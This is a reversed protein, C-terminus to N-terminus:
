RRCCKRCSQRFPIRSLFLLGMGFLMFTGPEPVSGSDHNMVDDLQTRSLAEDYIFVEDIIGSFFEFGTWGGAGTGPNNGIHLFDYGTGMIGSETMTEGNVYLMVNQASQNYSVAIFFWENLEVAFEGLVAGSGSFSSWGPDPDTQVGGRYDIGLTRDYSGNDHSIVQRIGNAANANVWAGMTLEPMVDPNINLDVRIYDDIGDFLYGQGGNYGSSLTAGNVTGDYGNGTTDNANGEFDYFAILTAHSYEHTSFLICALLVIITFFNKKINATSNM